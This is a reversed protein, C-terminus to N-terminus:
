IISLDIGRSEIANALRKTIEAISQAEFSIEKGFNRKQFGFETQLRMTQSAGTENYSNVYQTQPRTIFVNSFIEERIVQFTNNRKKPYFTEISVLPILYDYPFHHQGKVNVISLELMHIIDRSTFSKFAQKMGLFFDNPNININLGLVNFVDNVRGLLTNLIDYGPTDLLFEVQLNHGADYVEGPFPLKINYTNPVEVLPYSTTPVTISRCKFTFLLPMIQTMFQIYLTDSNTVVSPLLKNDVIYEKMESYLSRTPDIWGNPVSLIRFYFWNNRHPENNFPIISNNGNDYGLMHSAHPTQGLALEQKINNIINSGTEASFQLASAVLNNANRANPDIGFIGASKLIDVVNSNGYAQLISALALTTLIRTDVIDLDYTALNLTKNVVAGLAGEPVTGMLDYLNSIADSLSAM